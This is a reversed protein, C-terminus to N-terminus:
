LLRKNGNDIPAVSKVITSIVQEGTLGDERISDVVVELVMQGKDGYELQSIFDHMKNELHLRPKRQLIEIRNAQM